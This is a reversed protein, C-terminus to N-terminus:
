VTRIQELLDRILVRANYKDRVNLCGEKLLKLRNRNHYLRKIEQALHHPTNERLIIGNRQDDIVLHNYKWDSTITPVGSIFGDLIIGSMGEGEYYTPFVILHYQAIVRYFSPDDPKLIGKFNIGEMNGTYSLLKNKYKRKIPGYVDLVINLGQNRLQKIADIALEIGKEKIVRSLFLCRFPNNNEISNEPIELPFNRFNSLTHVNRLGFSMLDYYMQETEVYIGNLKSLGQGIRKNKVAMKYLWGGIVIYYIRCNYKRALFNYFPLLFRLGLKGPLIFIIKQEKFLRFISILIRLPRAKIISTDVFKVQSNEIKAVIEHFVRTKLTQGDIQGKHFGFNGIIGFM